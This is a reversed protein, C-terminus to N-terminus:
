RSGVFPEPLLCLPLFTNLSALTKSASLSSHSAFKKKKKVAQEEQKRSKGTRGQAKMRFGETLSNGIDALPSM